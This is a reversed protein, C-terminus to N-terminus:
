AAELVRRALAVERAARDHARRDGRRPRGAGRADGALARDREDVLLVDLWPPTPARGRGAALGALGRAQWSRGAPGSVPAGGIIPSVAVVPAPTAGLAEAIGPVALIPGISTVPNSPCVVVLDRAPSPRAFARLRRAGGGRGRVGRRLVDGQAKERM